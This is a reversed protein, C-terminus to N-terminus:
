QDKKKCVYTRSARGITKASNQNEESLTYTTLLELGSKELHHLFETENFHIEVTDV